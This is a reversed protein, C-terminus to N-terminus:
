TRRVLNKYQEGTMGYTSAVAALATLPQKDGIKGDPLMLRNEPHARLWYHKTTGDPEPTGNIVEVMLIDSDDKRPKRWLIGYEDRHLEVAGASKMYHEAGMREIMIRRIEVNQEADIKEADILQPQEIVYQPVRVGHWAWVGWGSRYGVAQGTENHIRGQDDRRLISHRHQLIAAGSYPAWWGCHRALACLPRSQVCCSLGVVEDFFNYFSL